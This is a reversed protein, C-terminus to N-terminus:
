QVGWEIVKYYREMRLGGESFVYGFQFSDEDISIQTSLFGIMLRHLPIM